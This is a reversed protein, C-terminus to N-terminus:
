VGPKKKKKINRTLEGGEVFVKLNGCEEYIIVIRLLDQLNEIDDINDIVDLEEQSDFNKQLTKRKM